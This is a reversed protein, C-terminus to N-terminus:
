CMLDGILMSSAPFFQITEKYFLPHLLFYVPHNHEVMDDVICVAM